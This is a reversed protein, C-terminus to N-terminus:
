GRPLGGIRLWNFLAGLESAAKSRPALEEATLGVTFAHVHDIRQHVVVPACDAGYGGIATRTQETLPNRVPASNIIAVATCNAIKTLDISAGISSLDVASSRCPILVLDSARAAQLAADAAHPATDIIALKAGAARAAKLVPELRAAQTSTVVPADAERLDSWKSASAQPDIDILVSPLGAREGAVAVACALTTKGAGGKQSLLAIIQM